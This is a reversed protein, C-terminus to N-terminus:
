AEQRSKCMAALPCKICNHKNPQSHVSEDIIIDSFVPPVILVDDRILYRSDFFRIDLNKNGPFVFEQDSRMIFAMSTDSFVICDMVWQCTVVNNISITAPAAGVVIANKIKKSIAVAATAGVELRRYIAGKMYEPPFFAYERARALMCASLPIDNQTELSGLVGVLQYDVRPPVYSKTGTIVKSDAARLESLVTKVIFDTNM